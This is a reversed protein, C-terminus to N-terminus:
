LSLDVAKQNINIKDKFAASILQRYLNIFNEYPM